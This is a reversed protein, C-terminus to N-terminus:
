LANLALSGIWYESPSDAIDAWADRPKHIPPIRKILDELMVSDHVHAASLLAALPIGQRNVVIHRKCSVKGRDPEARQTGGAKDTLNAADLSCTVLRDARVPRDRDLLAHFFADWAGAERLDRLRRWFTM